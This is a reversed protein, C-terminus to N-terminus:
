SQSEEPPEIIVLPVNAEVSDGSECNVESVTGQIPAQIENQMKMAELILLVEGEEVQDGVAVHMTVVKGPIPSSITGSRKRGRSRGASGRGTESHAGGDVQISYEKGGVLVRWADGEREVDVEFEEGDVIVRRTEGM